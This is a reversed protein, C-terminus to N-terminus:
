LGLALRLSLLPAVLYLYYNSSTPLFEEKIFLKIGDAAPQLIGWVRVKSPGKRLQRLGLVKREM